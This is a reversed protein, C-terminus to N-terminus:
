GTFRWNSAKAGAAVPENDAGTADDDGSEDDPEEDGGGEAARHRGRLMAVVAGAVALAAVIWGAVSFFGPGQEAQALVAAFAADESDTAQEGATGGHTTHGTAQGPAAETLALQVPPLAPGTGGAYTPELVFTMGSTM